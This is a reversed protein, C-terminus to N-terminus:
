NVKTVNYQPMVEKINILDGHFKQFKKQPLDESNLM